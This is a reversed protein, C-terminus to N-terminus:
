LLSHNIRKYMLIYSFNIKDDRVLRLLWKVHHQNILLKVTVNCSFNVLGIENPLHQSKIPFEINRIYMKINIQYSNFLVLTM